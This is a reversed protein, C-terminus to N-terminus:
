SGYDIDNMVWWCSISSHSVMVSPWDDNEAIPRPRGMVSFKSCSDPTCAARLIIPSHRAFWEMHRCTFGVVSGRLTSSTIVFSGDLPIGNCSDFNVPSSSLYSFPSYRAKDYQQPVPLPMGCVVDFVSWACLFPIGQFDSGFVNWSAMRSVRARPKRHSYMSENHM